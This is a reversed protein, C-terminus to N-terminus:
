SHARICNVKENDIEVDNVWPCGVRCIVVFAVSILLCDYPTFIQRPVVQWPDTQDTALQEWVPIYVWNGGTSKLQTQQTTLRTPQRPIVPTNERTFPSVVSCSQVTTIKIVSIEFVRICYLIYNPYM